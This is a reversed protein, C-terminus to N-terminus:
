AVGGPKLAPSLLLALFFPGGIIAMILGIPLEAPAVVTRAFMDAVTLLLAGCLASAPLLLRHDPGIVLRLLHPVVLGLFGIVGSFAVAAGVAMATLLIICRKVWRIPFGLHEAVTEGMLFGNLAPAFLPLLLLPIVIFPLMAAVDQWSSQTLSGMSWFTISRLESDDAIFTLLGTAAGAIANIAIGALLLTAVQTYGSRTSIRYIVLTTILSAVFAAVPLAWRGSLWVWSSFLTDGLVIISVAGLAAGSSVGILGPDALPNRFLGQIAAGSLALAAGVLLAMVLRPLRIQLLTIELHLPVPEIASFGLGQKLVAVLERSPIHLAGTVLSWASAVVLAAAFIGWLAIPNVRYM